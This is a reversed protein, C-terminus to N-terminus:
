KKPVTSQLARSKDIRDILEDMLQSRAFPVFTFKVPPSFVVEHGLSCPERLSLTVRPPNVMVSYSVNKINSLPIQAEQHGKKVLLFDGCDYVEDALDFLLKKFLVFGFVSMILPVLLVPLPPGHAKFFTTVVGAILMFGLAGFWILPFIRKHFFTM